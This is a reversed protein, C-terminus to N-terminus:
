GKLENYVRDLESSVEVFAPLIRPDFHSPGSRGDGETMIRVSTAHDPAPKYRRASRLADCIDAIAM